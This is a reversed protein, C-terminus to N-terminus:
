VRRAQTSRAASHHPERDGSRRQKAWFRNLASPITFLATDPRRYVTASGPREPYGSRNVVYYEGNASSWVMGDVPTRGTINFDGDLWIIEDETAVGKPDALDGVVTRVLSAFRVERVIQLEQATAAGACVAITLALVAAIAPVDTRQRTM